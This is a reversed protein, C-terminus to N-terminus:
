RVITVAGSVESGAGTLIYYYTGDPLEKGNQNKGNWNNQYNKDKYVLNGWRNVVVLEIPPPIDGFNPILLMEGTGDGNPTMVNAPKEIPPATVPPTKSLIVVNAQACVDPCSKLCIEYSFDINETTDVGFTFDYTGDGNSKLSGYLPTTLFSLTVNERGPIDDNALFDLNTLPQGLNFYVDAYAALGESQFVLVTDSSYAPCESSSLTWVFANGGPVLDSVLTSPEFPQSIFAASSNEVTTWEGMTGPPLNGSLQTELGDCLNVEDGADAPPLLGSYTSVLVNDVSYAGCVGNTLTWTFLYSNNPFFGSIPSNPNTPELIEIGLSAQSAPQSWEGTLGTAQTGVANLAIAPVSNCFSLDDGAQAPETAIATVNVAMTDASFAQCAGNTLTWVFLTQGTPLNSVTSAPNGTNNIEAGGFTTWNGTSFQPAIAALATIETTECVSKDAGALATEDPITDTLVQINGVEPCGTGDAITVTYISSQSVTISQTTEGTSWLFTNGAGADLTTDQNECISIDAGISFTALPSFTLEVTVLSDCGSAAPLTASGVPNAANFVKNGVVLSDGECLNLCLHVPAPVFGLDAVEVDQNISDTCGFKDFVIHTVNVTDFNTYTHAPNAGSGESGDGFNWLWGTLGFTGQSMDNFILSKPQCVDTVLASFGAQIKPYVFVQQESTDSMVGDSAILRVAPSATM